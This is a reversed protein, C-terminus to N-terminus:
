GATGRCTSARHSCVCGKEPSPGSGHTCRMTPNSVYNSRSHASSPNGFYLLGASPDAILAAECRSDPLAVPDAQWTAAWTQAGDDSRAFLRNSAMAKDGDNRSSMVVSGNRLEALQCESWGHPLKQGGTFTVGHNDSILAFSNTSGSCDHCDHRQPILVRGRHSGATLVIGSSVGSGGTQNINSIVTPASWSSALDTSRKVSSICPGCLHATDMGQYVLLLTDSAPDYGLVADFESHNRPDSLVVNPASWSLGNTDSRRLLVSTAGQDGHGNLKAQAIAILTGNSTTVINPVRFTNIGITGSTFLATLPVTKLASSPDALLLPVLLLPLM